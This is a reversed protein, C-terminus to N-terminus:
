FHLFNFFFFFLVLVWWGLLSAVDSVAGQSGTAGQSSHRVAAAWLQLISDYRM